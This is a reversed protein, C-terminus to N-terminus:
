RPRDGARFSRWWAYNTGSAATDAAISSGLHAAIMGQLAHALPLSVM